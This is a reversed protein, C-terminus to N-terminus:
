KGFMFLISDWTISVHALKVSETTKLVIEFPKTIIIDNADTNTADSISSLQQDGNYGFGFLM